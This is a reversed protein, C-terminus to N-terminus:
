ILAIGTMDAKGNKLMEYTMRDAQCDVFTIGKLKKGKFFCNRLQAQNFEVKSFSCNDFVCDEILGSFALTSFHSLKFTSLNWVTNEAKCNKLESSHLVMGSCNAASFDCNKLESTTIEADILSCAVFTNNALNSANIKSNRFDSNSFDCGEIHNASLILDSLDSGIFKCNKMNSTSFKDKLNQLGSFDADVWNGSSMDWNLGPKKKIKPSAPQEEIPEDVRRTAVAQFKDSFYNLDVGLTEALRILTLSDPVSEGREWKGVAQPSIFLREALQAQSLNLNKRAEAIKNGMMKSEMMESNKSTIQHHLPTPM